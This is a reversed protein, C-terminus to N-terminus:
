TMLRGAISEAAKGAWAHELKETLPADRQAAQCASRLSDVTRGGVVLRGAEEIDRLETTDRAVLCPVGMYSAEIAVGGSDTVVADAHMLAQRFEAPGVPALVNVGDLMDDTMVQATHPHRYFDVPGAVALERLFQAIGGVADRDGLTEARHITVVVRDGAAAEPLNGDELLADVAIEGSWLHSLIGERQLNAGDCHYSYAHGTAIHDVLIRNLEEPQSRDGSRSGAEVHYVPIGMKAAALAGALASTTDGQVVVWKPTPPVIAYVLQKVMHSLALVDKAGARTEEWLHQSLPELKRDISVGLLDPLSGVLSESYHQGTWIVRRQGEPIRRILPGLKIVEPRTGLVFTIM